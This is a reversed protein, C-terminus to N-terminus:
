SKNIQIIAKKRKKFLWFQLQDKFAKAYLRQYIRQKQKEINPDKVLKKDLLKFIHLGMPTKVVSSIQGVKLNEIAKEMSAIMDGSRFEGFKGKQKRSDPDVSHKAALNGFSSGTKLEKLVRRAKKSANKRFLIHALHYEFIQSQHSRNHALYYSIIDQESIKIKSTIEKEVLLRRELTKKVFSHYEKYNVSQKELNKRLQAVTMSQRKAINLIEKNVKEKTVVFGQRKVEFDIIKEDVLLKLLHKEDKLAKKRTESESFILDDLFGGNKLKNQYEKIESLTIIEGNIVARIKELLKASVSLPFIALFFFVFFLNQKKYFSKKGMPDM